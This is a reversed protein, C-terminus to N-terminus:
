GLELKANDGDLPAGKGLLGKVLGLLQAPKDPSDWYEGGTLDVRILAVAPDEPGNQFWAEAFPNWLSKKKAVDDLLHATGSASVYTDGDIFILNVQPRLALQVTKPSDAFAFFWVTADDDVQQVAMPRSMITGDAAVTTMMAIRVGGVLDVFTPQDHERGQAPDPRSVTTDTSSEPTTSM